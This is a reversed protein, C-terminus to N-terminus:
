LFVRPCRLPPPSHHNKPITTVPETSIILNLKGVSNLLFRLIQEIYHANRNCKQSEWMRPRILYVLIIEMWVGFGSGRWFELDSTQYTGPGGAEIHVDPTTLADAHPFPTTTKPPFSMIVKKGISWSLFYYRLLFFYISYYVITYM